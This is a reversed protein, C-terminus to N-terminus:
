RFDANQTIGDTVSVTLQGITAVDGSNGDKLLVIVDHQGPSVPVTIDKDETNPYWSVVNTGDVQISRTFNAGALARNVFHETTTKKKEASRALLDALGVEAGSAGAPVKIHINGVPPQPEQQVLSKMQITKKDIARLGIFWATDATDNGGLVLWQPPVLTYAGKHVQKGHGICSVEVRSAGLNKIQLTCADSMKLDSSQNLAIAATKNTIAFYNKWKFMRHLKESLEPDVPQYKITEKDDNAGWILRAELKLDAGRASLGTVSFVFGALLLNYFPRM